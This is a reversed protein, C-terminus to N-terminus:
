LELRGDNDYDFLAVGAGMSEMLYKRSTPSAAHKFSIGTKPTIDTFAVPSPAQPAPPPATKSADGGGSYSRGTRQQPSAPQPAPSTTTQALACNTEHGFSALVLLFALLVSPYHCRARSSSNANM